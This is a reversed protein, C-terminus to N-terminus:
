PEPSLRERRTRLTAHAEPPACETLEDLLRQLRQRLHISSTRTAIVEDLAVAVFDDWTPMPVVVRLQSDSDHVHGIDLQRTTLTRLLSDIADLAQVATSPDNIASSVARLAIDALVRLALLPDQEFTRENGASLKALIDHDFVSTPGGHVVAVVGHEVLTQGPRVRFEITVDEHQARRLLPPVDIVQLVAYRHPWLVEHHPDAVGPGAARVHAEDSPVYLHDIVERGRESVQELTSALQISRFAATQLQRFLAIAVLLLLVLAIPVLGTTREDRGISFAATFAFILIGIYFAFTHSVIPADRFLNLRPTFTTTGFQVVLFLLSYVIGIFTVVGIGTAVLAETARDTPVTAGISIQPVALGLAFAVLAYLLQVTTARLGRRRHLERGLRERRERRIAQSARASPTDVM